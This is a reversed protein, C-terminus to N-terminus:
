VDVTGEMLRTPVERGLGADGGSDGGGGGGRVVVTAVVVVLVVVLVVVVVVVVVAVEAVVMWAGHRRTEGRHVLGCAAFSVGRADLATVGVRWLAGDRLQGPLRM